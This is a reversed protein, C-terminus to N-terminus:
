KCPYQQVLDQQSVDLSLKIFLPRCLLGFGKGMALLALVTEGRCEAWPLLKAGNTAHHEITRGAQLFVVKGNRLTDAGIGKITGLV